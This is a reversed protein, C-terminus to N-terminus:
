PKAASNTVRTANEGVFKEVALAIAEAIGERWEGSKMLRADELSSLYGTEILVSPVDPATLVRFGASRLPQKHMSTTKPLSEGLHRALTMSFHRTERKTLDFLIDGIVTTEERSEVGAVQDASNESDALRASLVDSAKESLTYISAGRVGPEYALKDAHLSVMLEAKRDRAFRVRDGLPVFVDSARTMAVQVKGSKELRDRVAMAVALVISKEDTGDPAAAGPDIGGHGPDIVVLPKQGAPATAVPASVTAPAPPQRRLADLRATDVFRARDVRGIHFIMRRRGEADLSDVRDVLAPETLDLVIRSRDAIFLGYRYAAVPGVKGAARAAPAVFAVKPIDIVIRDPRSLVSVEYAVEDSLELALSAGTARPVLVVSHAVVGQTAEARVAPASLALAVLVALAWLAGTRSVFGSVLQLLRIMAGRAPGADSGHRLAAFRM